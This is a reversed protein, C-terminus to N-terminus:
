NERKRSPTRCRSPRRQGGKVKHMARKPSVSPESKIDSTPVRTRCSEAMEHLRAHYQLVYQIRQWPSTNLCQLNSPRHTRPHLRAHTRAHKRAHKSAQTRALTRAHTRTHTHTNKSYQAKKARAQALCHEWKLLVFSRRQM